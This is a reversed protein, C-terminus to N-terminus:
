YAISTRLEKGQHVSSWKSHIAGEGEPASERTEASYINWENVLMNNEYVNTVLKNKAIEMDRTIEDIV